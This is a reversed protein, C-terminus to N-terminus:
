IGDHRLREVSNRVTTTEMREAHVTAEIHRRLSQALALEGVHEAAYAVALDVILIHLNAPFGPMEEDGVLNSPEMVGWVEIVEGDDEPAPYLYLVSGHQMYHTPRGPDNAEAMKALWQRLSLPALPVPVTPADDDYWVVEEVERVTTPIAYNATSAKTELQVKTRSWKLKLDLEHYGANVWEEIFTMPILRALEPWTRIIAQHVMAKLKGYTLGADATSIAQCSFTAETAGSVTLLYPNGDFWYGGGLGRGEPGGAAYAPGYRVKYTGDDLQLEARGDEDTIAVAVLTTESSNRVALRVGPVPDNNEDRMTLTVTNAGGGAVSSVWSGAGHYETLTQNVVNAINTVSTYSAGEAVVAFEGILGVPDEDDVSVTAFVAYTEGAAFGNEETAEVAVEYCGNPYASASLLVPTPTLVPDASASDGCRRVAVAPSSGDAASGETDNVAFHLYVTTGLEVVQM